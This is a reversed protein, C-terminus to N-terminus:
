VMELSGVSAGLGGGGISLELSVLGLSGVGHCGRLAAWV